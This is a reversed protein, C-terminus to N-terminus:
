EEITYINIPEVRGKVHVAGLSIFKNKGTIEKKTTEGVILHTKHEKNLGELRSAVNVTDGMATYDFRQNSGINGVVAKGTYLGIGIDIKIGEEKYLEENFEKLRELMGLSAKFANDVQYVDDLPAGWFAMVADGIYKDLVGGYKLVEGTMLTFYKNLIRVLEQPTVKESLTTFGRIDSFLVTIIKEEGGLKVGNPDALIKELVAGSVYKSFVNKLQRKEREGVLYRYSFVSLASLIWALNIHILNVAVGREYWIIIAINYLIGLGISIILPRWPSKIVSFLVAPILAVLFILFISPITGLPSIKYDLIFMNLINAQIEVGPMLTGRSFPTLKEDHLDPSTVGILVLKDKLLDRVEKGELLRYFPIRKINGTPQSYVIRTVGEPSKLVGAEQALRFSFASLTEEEIKIFGPINRVVGDQDIILNVHGPMVRTNQFFQPLPHTTDTAAFIEGERFLEAEVPLVLPYSINKLAEALAEDDLAGLRSPDALLVDFGVAKPASQNLAKFAKAFVERPWPWQGIRSLSENDIALIVIRNDVKKPGVLLDEFFHESGFFIGQSFSLSVLLAVLSGLIGYPLFKKM